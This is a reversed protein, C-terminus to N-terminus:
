EVYAFSAILFPLLPRRSCCAFLISRADLFISFLPLLCFSPASLSPLFPAAMQSFSRVFSLAHTNTNQVHSLLGFLSFVVLFVILLLCHFLGFSLLQTLKFTSFCAFWVSVFFSSFRLSYLSLCLSLSLCALLVTSLRLLIVVVSSPSPCLTFNLLLFCASVGRCVFSILFQFSVYTRNRM